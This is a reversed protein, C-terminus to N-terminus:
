RSPPLPTWPDSDHWDVGPKFIKLKTTIDLYARGEDTIYLYEKLDFKKGNGINEIDALGYGSTPQIFNLGDLRHLYKVLNPEKTIEAKDTGELAKLPGFEHKMLIGRLALRIAEIDSQVRNLVGVIILVIVSFVLIAVVTVIFRSDTTGGALAPSIALLCVLLTVIIAFLLKPDEIRRVIQGVLGLLTDGHPGHKQGKDLESPANTSQM